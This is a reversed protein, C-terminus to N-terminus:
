KIKKLYYKKEEKERMLQRLCESGVKYSLVGKVYMEINNM